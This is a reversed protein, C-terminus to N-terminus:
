QVSTVPVKDASVGCACFWWFGSVVRFLCDLIFDCHDLQFLICQEGTSWDLCTGWLPVGSHLQLHLSPHRSLDRNCVTGPVSYYLWDCVALFM